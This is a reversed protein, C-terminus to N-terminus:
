ATVGEDIRGAGSSGRDGAMDRGDELMLGRAVVEPVM